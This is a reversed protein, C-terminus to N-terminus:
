RRGAATAMENMMQAETINSWCHGGGAGFSIRADAPPDARKFFEDLMHVANNLFYDDSEGVSIHIKGRMKPGLSKWNEELILRLDYKKWHPVVSKDIKGTKPDWLPVPRGDAGRPGYVANWAGWQQGSMAWSGGLGIVNEMQCERRITFEVNGNLDRKSPRELGRDDVYANDDKYINILQFGRLDVGDPCSSWVANFYDPYFVKLALSVWGGTSQGDLMRAYPQGVARFTREIYPILERTIADGYSGNNDSNIQYPDGFPGDGDLQLFIMRPTDAALWIRRFQSGPAMLRSVATFRTGYGGIHIRLPYRRNLETGYDRPLIVAARLYIPRKHFATLLISQIRVYKLYEDDPPLREPPVIKTLEIRVTTGRRPELHVRQVESYETGPADLSKLDTNSHFLAQIYYDGPQLDDLNRLPFIEASKDLSAVRGTGFDRVDRAMVPVAGPGAEDIMTRPEPRDTKGIVVFLRGSVPAFHSTVDFRLPQAQPVFFLLSLLVSSLLSALHRAIM